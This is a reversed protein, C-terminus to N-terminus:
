KYLSRKAALTMLPPPTFADGLHESCLGLSNFLGLPSRTAPLDLGGTPRLPDSSPNVGQLRRLPLQCWLPLESPPSSRSVVHPCSEDILHAPKAAPFGGSSRIGSTATPHFLGAGYASSSTTSLTLFASPSGNTPRPFGSTLPSQTNM